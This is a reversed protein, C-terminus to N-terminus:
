PQAPTDDICSARLLMPVATEEFCPDQLFTDAYEAYYQRFYPTAFIYVPRYPLRSLMTEREWSEGLLFVEWEPLAWVSEFLGPGGVHHEPLWGRLVVASENELTLVYGEEPVVDRAAVVAAYTEDDVIPGRGIISQQMIFLQIACLVALAGRGSPLPFRRWLDALAIGAFPLLFFDLQLFFRRYFLLRLVVFVLCWLVSLQWLTWRERRLSLWFGYAGAALLLGQTRLYFTAPPFSGSAVEGRGLLAPLHDLVAEKWVPLYALVGAALIFLGFGALMFLRKMGMAADIVKETSRTFPLLPLIIWATFALGFLLGTQHHTVVALFGLPVSWWSRRDLADYALVAWFLSAYTKWYMAAFGDFYAVSLLAALLTFVAALGGHRRRVTLALAGALVVPFVNWVWGILWDVPVGLRILVTSFFFLGLPHGRAWPELDALAFPPFGTAHVLFLYRYFGPDYGLPMDFSVLPWCFKVLLGLVFALAWPLRKDSFWARNMALM